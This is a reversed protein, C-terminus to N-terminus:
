NGEDNDGPTSIASLKLMIEMALGIFASYRVIKPLDVVGDDDELNFLKAYKELLSGATLLVKAADPKGDAAVNSRMADLMAMLDAFDMVGLTVSVQEAEPLKDNGNWTPIFTVQKTFKFKM